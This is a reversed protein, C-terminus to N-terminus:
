RVSDVGRRILLIPTRTGGLASCLQMDSRQHRGGHAVRCIAVESAWGDFGGDLLHRSSWRFMGVKRAAETRVFIVEAAMALSRERDEGPGVWAFGEVVRGVGCM